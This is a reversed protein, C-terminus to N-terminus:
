DQRGAILHIWDIYGLFVRRAIRCCWLTLESMMEDIKSDGAKIRDSLDYYINFKIAKFIFRLHMAWFTATGARSYLKSLSAFWLISQLRPQGIHIEAILVEIKSIFESPNIWIYIIDMDQSVSLCNLYWEGLAGFDLRNFEFRTWLISQIKHHM